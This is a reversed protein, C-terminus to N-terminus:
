IHQTIDRALMKVAGLRAIVTVFEDLDAIPEDVLLLVEVVILELPEVRPEGLLEELVAPATIVGAGLALPHTRAHPSKTLRM